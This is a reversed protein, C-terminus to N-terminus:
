VYKARVRANHKNEDITLAPEKETKLNYPDINALYDESKKNAEGIEEPSLGLSEYEIYDLFSGKVDGINDQSLLESVLNDIENQATKIKALEGLGGQSLNEQALYKGEQISVLLSYKDGRTWRVYRFVMRLVTENKNLLVENIEPSFDGTKEMNQGALLMANIKRTRPDEIKTRLPSQYDYMYIIYRVIVDKKLEQPLLAQFEPFVFLQPFASMLSKGVPVKHVALAMKGFEETSFDYLKIKNM